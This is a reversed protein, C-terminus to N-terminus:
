QGEIEEMLTSAKVGLVRAIEIFELVNLQREGAELKWVFSNSRRLKATLQRQTLGAAERRAM